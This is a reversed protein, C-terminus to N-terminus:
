RRSREPKTFFNKLVQNDTSIEFSSGELYCRFRKLFCILGLLERDNTTYNQEAPSLKKSFLAIVRDKGSDDLQTLTGRVATISADIHRRFLKEWDPSVLIPASTIAKKFSEFAEDCKVDCKQIGADKKTLNTLHAALKSFEKNFRRFFQLLGMFYKVDTLTM